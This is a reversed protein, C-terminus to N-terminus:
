FQNRPTQPKRRNSQTGRSFIGCISSGGVAQSESWPGPNGARRAAQLEGLTPGNRHNTLAFRATIAIILADMGLHHPFNGFCNVALSAWFALLWPERRSIWVLRFYFALWLSLGVWGLEFLVQLYDNHLTIPYGDGGNFQHDTFKQINQGYSLYSGLGFGTTWRDPYESMGKVTAAWMEKRGSLPIKDAELCYASIAIFISLWIAAAIRLWRRQKYNGILFVSAAVGIAATAIRGKMAITALISLGPAELDGYPVLLALATSSLSSNLDPGKYFWNFIAALFLWVLSAGWLWAMHKRTVPLKKAIVIVAVLCVMAKMGAMSLVGQTLDNIQHTYSYNTLSFWIGNLLSYGVALSLFKDTKWLDRAFLIACIAVVVAWKPNYWDDGEIGALFLVAM